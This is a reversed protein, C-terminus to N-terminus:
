KKKSICIQTVMEGNIIRINNKEEVKIWSGDIAIVTARFGSLEGEICITVEKGICENLMELPM